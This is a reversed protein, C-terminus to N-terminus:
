GQVQEGLFALSAAQIQADSGAFPLVYVTTPFSFQWNYGVALYFQTRTGTVTADWTNQIPYTILGGGAPPAGAYIVAIKLVTDSCSMPTATLGSCVAARLGAETPTTRNMRQTVLYDVGRDTAHSLMMSYLLALGLELIGFIVYLFIPVILAFEVAAAGSENLRLWARM